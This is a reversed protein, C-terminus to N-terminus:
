TPSTLAAKATAVTAATFTYDNFEWGTALNSWLRVNVTSGNTPLGSVTRWLDTGQSANYLNASGASGTGVYLWYQSVSTGTNWQFTVTSGTLISGPTPSTLAAKAAAATVTLTLSNSTGGGPASTVVTILRTGATAVDSAPITATLQTGSVITRTRSAGDVLVQSRDVFGTGTITMTFTAAGVGISSPSISSIAPVGPLTLAFNISGTPDPSTVAIATGTTPDCASGICEINNYLRNVYSQSNTRAFYNGTPLGSRSIYNGSADTQGSTVFGATSNYILVSVNALAATTTADTVTGSIRGGAVLAFDINPTTNPSTVTIPTGSTPSCGACTINSHVLDILGQSNFTRAFFTGTPLASSTYNGSADTSSGAVFGGSSNYIEVSVNALGAGTAASTVRGSIRGGNINFSLSFAFSNGSGSDTVQIPTTLFGATTPTGSVVGTSSLTLGAPMTGTTTWTYPSTGGMALLPQSYAANFMLTTGSLPLSFYANALPSVNWTFARTATVNAADTVALTFNYTGIVMPRGALYMFIPTLNSSLTDGPGQLTVGPPLSGSQVSWTAYPPTGGNAVLTTTVFGGVTTVLPTSTSIQLASATTSGIVLGFRKQVFGNPGSAAITFPGNFSFMPTGSIVGNSSLVLGTPLSSGTWMCGSGCGPAELTLNYPTGVTGQPLVGGTTIAFPDVTLTPNLSITQSTAVDTLFLTLFFTGATTPTGSIVGTSSNISLGAPLNTVSWSYNGTAPFAMNAFSYQTNLTAKPLSTQSVIAFAAVSVTIACDLTAGASDTVRISTNYTGATTLVGLYGGTVTSPFSTPLPAGNQVRMGPIVTAGPTLSYQYPPVGGTAALQVTFRGIIPSFNPGINLGLPPTVGFPYISVSFTRSATQSGDTVNVTFSFQGTATPTGSLVGSSAGLSLGPPLYNFPAVSWTLSGTGGTAALTQSYATGVNGFPLTSSTTINITTVSLTFQRVAYNAANGSDAAKVLFSFVGSTSPTGSLLGGSSLTVGSPLSGGIQSWTISGACCANLTRSYSQGTTTSGLNSSTNISIGGSGAGNIFFYNTVSLTQSASDTYTLRPNFSGSEAPTGSLTLTNSNLTLGAALLGGTQVASYPGSGGIVRLTSAYATDLTGNPLFTTQLLPSVTLPFTNSATTGDADTVTLQVNYTGLASPSGWLEADGPTLWSSTVGDGTRISMGAPLGTASWAFPATGGSYVGFGRNCPVGITCDDAAPGYPRISPLRAPVGVVDISMRKTYSVNNTDTATVYVSFNGVNNTTGSIGGASNMSLGNPLGNAFFTYSGTGGSAAVSASYAAGQTANPLVGPTTIRIASIRLSQGQFVTDTGDNLSLSINYSGAATPTGSLVGAASLTLGPPVPFSSVDSNTWTVAGANALATLTYTYFTGVFADPLQHSDKMRLLAIKLTSAQDATQGGSTVRLTFNYTGPTTAVGILGASATSPFFSPLDTRLSVGPPLSGAIVSWAYTGDGGTASLPVQLQGISATGFNAGQSQFVPATVGAPYISLNFTRSATQSATDAVNVVFVYQGSATPTSNLVGATSLTLGPPLYNFPALTWTLAGSGGSATLAQGYATGVNGFPLTSSTTINITTVNLTFQRAAYNAANAADAAQVLFTYIGTASPSGSLLGGSSLSVGPPLSGGIQSWTISGACCASLTRSYSSGATTSGLDSGTNINIGGSGAGNIFFYSTGRLTQGASDTYTFRPNFSGSEAATGSVTLTNSNLTLGAALLGGTQAASYPGSGGIVRLTSGYATGLAGNPLFSTQLITSVRLPFTNTATTGNADTVTLQVNYTGAAIPRGWLEVDGPSVWSTTSGSGSRVAMGPPLGTATWSFPATGGNLVHVGRNCPVGITCDDLGHGGHPRISPLAAPVGIVTISMSKTYSVNNTDRATVQLDFKGPGSTVTGSIVGTSSNLSLGSLLSNATFTYGGAGGTAAITASYATNQTANPLTGATTINVASINFNAGYFVTDTGDNLSFSVNGFGSTTPTGSLLGTSSLSLGNPVTGTATWTVAGANGQAGLQYSYATGVFADPLQGETTSLAVVKFTSAQDAIQGGSAVRVTFTYTGPTTAIGILGASASAPFYSPTDTRIALGPPLSGAVVSWAYTGNGGTASLQAEIQGVSWTGFNAGQSQFV